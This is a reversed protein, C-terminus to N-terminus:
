HSVDADVCATGSLLTDAKVKHTASPTNEPPDCLFVCLLGATHKLFLLSLIASTLTRSTSPPRPRHSKTQIVHSAM